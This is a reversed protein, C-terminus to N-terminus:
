KGPPPTMPVGTQPPATQEEAPPAGGASTKRRHEAFLDLLGRASASDGGGGAAVTELPGLSRSAVCDRLAALLAERPMGEPTLSLGFVRDVDSLSSPFGRLGLGYVAPERVFISRAWLSQGTFALDRDTFNWVLDGNLEKVGNTQIVTGPLSLRYRYATQPLMYLPMVTGTMYAGFARPVLGAIKALFNNISGHRATIAQQVSALLEDLAVGALMEGTVGQAGPRPPCLQQALRIGYEKLRRVNEEDLNPHGPEALELGERAAEAKLFMYYEYEEGPSTVGSRKASHIAWAGAYIRRLKAPLDNYLWSELAGLNYRQGYKANLVSMVEPVVLRILETMAAEGDEQNKVIDTVTEDFDALVFLVMDMVRFSFLNGALANTGPTARVLDSPIQDFSDFAGAFLARNQELRFTDYREAPPLQFSDGLRPQQNPFRPNPRIEMRTTRTVTYDPYVRTELSCLVSPSCGAQLLLGALVAPILTNRLRRM